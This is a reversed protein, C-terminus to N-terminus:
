LQNKIEEGIKFEKTKQEDFQIPSQSDKLGVKEETLQKVKIQILFLNRLVQHDM